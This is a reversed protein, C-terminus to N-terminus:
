YKRILLKANQLMKETRLSVVYLGNSLNSCDIRTTYEGSSVGNIMNRAVVRGFNDTVEIVVNSNENLVYHVHVFDSTPNPYVHLTTVPDKTVNRNELVSHEVPDYHTSDVFMGLGFTAAYIIGRNHVGPFIEVTKQGLGNYSVLCTDKLSATQQFLRFVPVKVNIGENYSEWVPNVATFNTTRYVGEETGIYVTDLNKREVLATYVANGIGLTSTGEKNVDVVSSLNATTANSILRIRGIYSDNTTYILNDDNQPDLTISLIDYGSQQFLLTDDVLMRDPNSGTYDYGDDTIKNVNL